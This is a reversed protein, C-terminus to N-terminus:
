AGVTTPKLGTVREAQKACVGPRKYGEGSDALVRGNRALMRWRWEGSDDRYQVVRDGRKGM